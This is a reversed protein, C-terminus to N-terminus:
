RRCNAGFLKKSVTPGVVPIAGGYVSWGNAAAGGAVFTNVAAGTAPTPKAASVSAASTVAVVLAVIKPFAPMMMNGDVAVALATTVGPLRRM